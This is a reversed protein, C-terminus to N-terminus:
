FSVYFIVIMVLGAKLQIQISQFMEFQRIPILVNTVHASHSSSIWNRVFSVDFPIPQAHTFWFIYVRNNRVLFLFGSDNLVIGIEISKTHSRPLYSWNFRVGNKQNWEMKARMKMLIRWMRDYIVSLISLATIALIIYQCGFLELVQFLSFGHFLSHIKAIIKLDKFNKHLQTCAGSFLAGVTEPALFIPASLLGPNLDLNM